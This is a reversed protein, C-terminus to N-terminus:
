EGFTHSRAKFKVGTPAIYGVYAQPFISPGWLGATPHPCAIPSAEGAHPRTAYIQPLPPMEVM